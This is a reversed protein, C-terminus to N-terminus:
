SLGGTLKSERESDEVKGTEFGSPETSRGTLNLAM